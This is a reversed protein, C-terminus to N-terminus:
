TVLWEGIGLSGVGSDWGVGLFASADARFCIRLADLAIIRDCWTLIGFYSKGILSRGTRKTEHEIGVQKQHL